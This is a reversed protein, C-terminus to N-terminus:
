YKRSDLFNYGDYEDFYREDEFINEIYFGYLFNSWKLNPFGYVQIIKKAAYGLSFKIHIYEYNKYNELKVTWTSDDLFNISGLSLEDNKIYSSTKPYTRELYNRILMIEENEFLSENLSLELYDIIDDQRNKWDIFLMKIPEKRTIRNGGITNKIVDNKFILLNETTINKSINLDAAIHDEFEYINYKHLEELSPFPLLFDLINNEFKMLCNSINRYNKYKM